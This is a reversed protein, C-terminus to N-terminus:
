VDDLVIEGKCRLIKISIAVRDASALPCDRILLSPHGLHQPHQICVIVCGIKADLIKLSVCLIPWVCFIGSINPISPICGALGLFHLFFLPNKINGFEVMLFM